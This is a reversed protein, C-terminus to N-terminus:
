IASLRKHSCVDMQKVATCLSECCFTIWWCRASAHLNLLEMAAASLASVALELVALRCLKLAM